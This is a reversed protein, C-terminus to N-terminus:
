WWQGRWSVAPKDLPLDQEPSWSPDRKWRTPDPLMQERWTVGPPSGDIWHYSDDRVDLHVYQTRPHTYLGVGAHAFTDLYAALKFAPVGELKFDVAEATTHRGANGDRWASVVLVRAGKFHYAAKMVLQVARPAIAHTEGDVTAVRAFADLAAPDIEGGADYLRVSARTLTNVSEVEIADLVEAWAAVRAERVAAVLLTELACAPTAGFASQARADGSGFTVSAIVSAALASAALRAM